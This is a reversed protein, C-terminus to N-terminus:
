YTRGTSCGREDTADTCQILGDCRFRRPVCHGSNCRFDHTTDCDTCDYLPFVDDLYRYETAMRYNDHQVPFLPLTLIDLGQGLNHGQHRSSMLALAM